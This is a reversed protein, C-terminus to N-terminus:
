SDDTLRFGYHVQGVLREYQLNRTHKLHRCNQLAHLYRVSRGSDEWLRDWLRLNPNLLTLDCSPRMVM